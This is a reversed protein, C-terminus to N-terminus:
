KVRCLTYVYKGSATRSIEDVFEIDVQCSQGMLMKTKTIIDKLDSEPAQKGSRLEVRILIHDYRDQVVQFRKIWNRFFLMQV